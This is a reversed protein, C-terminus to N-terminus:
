RKWLIRYFLFAAIELTFFVGNKWCYKRHRNCIWASVNLILRDTGSWKRNRVVTWVKILHSSEILRYLNWTFSSSGLVRCLQYKVTCRKLHNQKELTRVAIQVDHRTGGSSHKIWFNINAVMWVVNRAATLRSYLGICFRCSRGLSCRIITHIKLSCTQRWETNLSM